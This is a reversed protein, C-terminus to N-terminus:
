YKITSLKTSPLMYPSDAFYFFEEFLMSIIISVDFILQFGEPESLLLHSVM